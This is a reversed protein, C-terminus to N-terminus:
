HVIFVPCRAEHILAQSVSGLLLGTLGGVGRSGVVIAAARESELVFRHRPDEAVRSIRTRVGAQNTATSLRAARMRADAQSMWAPLSWLVVLESGRWRAEEVAFRVARDAWRSGDYGAVVPREAWSTGRPPGPMRVVLVPGRHRAAVQDSTAGTLLGGARTHGAGVVLLDEASARDLLCSVPPGVALRSAVSLADTGAHARDALRRLLATGHDRDAEPVGRPQAHVISLPWGRLEAEIAAHDVAIAATPTDDAGVVVTHRVVPLPRPRRPPAPRTATGLFRNITGLRGPHRTEQTTM